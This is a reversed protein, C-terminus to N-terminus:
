LNPLRVPTVTKARYRVGCGAAERRTQDYAVGGLDNQAFGLM